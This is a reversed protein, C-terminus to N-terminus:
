MGCQSNLLEKWTLPPGSKLRHALVERLGTSDDNACQKRISDLTIDDVHLAQGIEFWRNRSDHLKTRAENLDDLTLTEDSFIYYLGFSNHASFIYTCLTNWATPALM